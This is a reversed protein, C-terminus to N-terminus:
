VWSGWGVFLESLYQENTSERILRAVQGEVSLNFGGDGQENGRLKRQIAELVQNSERSIAENGENGEEEEKRGTKKKRKGKSSSRLDEKEERGSWLSEDDTEDDTETIIEDDEENDDDSEHERDKDKNKRQKGVLEKPTLMWRFLPDYLVVELIVLVETARERLVSLSLECSRQFNGEMGHRGFGDFASFKCM